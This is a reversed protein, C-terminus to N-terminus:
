GCHYTCGVFAKRYTEGNHTFEYCEYINSNLDFDCDCTIKAVTYNHLIDDDQRMGHGPIECTTIFDGSELPGNINCVWIAGEGLSNIMVRDDGKEKPYVSVFRGMSFSRSDDNPDEADSVVGFVSKQMKKSSLEVFPIAENITIGRHLYSGSAAVILGVEAEAREVSNGESYLARHQGTFNMKESGGTSNNIYGTLIHNVSDDNSDARNCSWTFCLSGPDPSSMFSLPFTIHWTAVGTSPGGAPDFHSHSYTETEYNELTFGAGAWDGVQRMWLGGTGASEVNPNHLLIRGTKGAGIQSNIAFPRDGNQDKIIFYNNYNSDMSGSPTTDVEITWRNNGNEQFVISSNHDTHADLVLQMNGDANFRINEGDDVGVLLANGATPSAGFAVNGKVYLDEDVTLDGGIRIDATGLDLSSSTLTGQVELDKHIVVDGDNEVTIRRSDNTVINLTHNSVTGVKMRRLSWTGDSSMDVTDRVHMVGQVDASADNAMLRIGAIDIDSTTAGDGTGTGWGGQEGVRLIAYENSSGVHLDGWPAAGGIAIGVKGDSAIHLDPSNIDGNGAGLRIEGNSNRTRLALYPNATSTSSDFNYFSSIVSIVDDSPSGFAIAGSHDDPSLLMMGVNGDDELVLNDYNSNVGGIGSEGARFLAHGAQAITTDLAGTSAGVVLNRGISVGRSLRDGWRHNGESDIKVSTGTDLDHDACTNGIININNEIPADDFDYISGNAASQYFLYHGEGGSTTLATGRSVNNLINMNRCEASSFSIQICSNLFQCNTININGVSGAYSDIDNIRIGRRYHVWDPNETEDFIINDINIGFNLKHGDLNKTGPNLINVQCMRMRFDKLTIFGDTLLDINGKPAISTSLGSGAIYLSSKHTPFGGTATARDDSTIPADTYSRTIDLVTSHGEGTINVPFNLWIGQEDHAKFTEEHNITGSAFPLEVNIRHTGSKLHVTPTGAKPFVKSFRKAYKVAKNVSTFHGLGPTPSVSISNLVKHDLQSIFLRLDISKVTSSNKEIVGVICYNDVSFPSCCTAGGAGTIAPRFVINGWRDMAVYFMDVSSSGTSIIDTLITQADFDFRKGLVYCTGASIDISYYGDANVAPSSPSLELGNIVGNSRLEEIPRQISKYVVDTGLDKYGITGRRAKSFIRPVDPSEGVVRNRSADYSARAVLYNQGENLRGGGYISLSYDGLALRAAIAESDEIYITLSVDYEGSYIKIYEDSISELIVKPGSDLVLQPLYTGSDISVNTVSLTMEKDYIDGEFDVITTLNHASFSGYSVGEAPYELATDFLISRDKDIFVDMVAAKSATGLKDFALGALPATNKFIRYRTSVKSIGAWKGTALQNADVTIKEPTVNTIRYTGNDDDTGTIVVLDGVAVGNDDFNYGTSVISNVGSQMNLTGTEDMKTAFGQYGVGAIYYNNGINSGVTVDAYKKMGLADLLDTSGSIKLTHSAESESVLDHVIAIESKDSEEYDVRYALVSMGNEAFTENMNKIITGITQNSASHYVDVTVDSGGDVSINLYRNTLSIESPLLGESIITAGEPNAIQITSADTDGAEERVSALLGAYNSKQNLNRYVSAVSTSDSNSTLRGFIEVSTIKPDTINVKSIQYATTTGLTTIEIIDCKNIGASPNTPTNTFNVTTTISETNPNRRTYNVPEESLLTEGHANDLPVSVQTTKLMGNDHFKDQHDTLQGLSANLVDEIAGQTDNSSVYTAVDTNDFFIQDAEHSRNSTSINAGNYNIHSTFLDDFANQVTTGSLSIIGLSSATAGIDSLSISTASHRNIADPHVHAKYLVSLENITDLVSNIKNVVQSIQEQLLQTPYNLRLKREDIAATKSVDANVIPGSLMGARSLSDKLINGNGDSLKNLRDAVTNGVAGQPNVGLTKEIQFIASRLSNIVDSGVEVINDRVAPLEVSTDLNKPYKSKPM